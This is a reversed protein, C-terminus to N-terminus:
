AAPEELLAGFDLRSVDIAGTVLKQLLLDRMVELPKNARRLGLALDGLTDLVDNLSRAVAPPPVVLTIEELHRKGLHAVTTGVIRENWERIPVRLAQYLAEAGLDGKPRIRTVRQNLLARGGPWRCMHFDGDMGILTDGDEVLYREGPFEDTYTPTGGNPVDRIRIVPWVGDVGFGKSKLAFGFGVEAEEFLPCTRWGAPIPGLPLDVLEDDEHGPYRFYVFWERYITRAMRELLAIRRRNNEILDDIADLVCCIADQTPLPPLRFSFAKIQDPSIHPVNVGTVIPKIYDSFRRSGVLHHIFSTRVLETGRMRTVRQVLLAPQDSSRIRARKLGAEIWPRDMALVVDGDSLEYRQYAARDSQPWRACRSWDLSGQGINVGRLLRPDSEDDTFRASRFAFGVLLDAVEGLTVDRWESM